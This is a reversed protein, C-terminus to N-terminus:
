RIKQVLMQGDREFEVRDPYIKHIRFGNVTSGEYFIQGDIMTSSTGNESFGIAYIVGPKGSRRAEVHEQIQRQNQHLRWKNTEAQRRLERILRDREQQLKSFECEIADEAKKIERLEAEYQRAPDGVVFTHTSGSNFGQTNTYGQATAYGQPTVYGDATSYTNGQQHGTSLSVKNQMNQYCRAKALEKATNLYEVRQKKWEQLSALNNTYWNEVRQEQQKVYENIQQSQWEANDSYQSIQHSEINDIALSPESPRFCRYPNTEAQEVDGSSTPLASVVVIVVLLVVFLVALIAWEVQQRKM